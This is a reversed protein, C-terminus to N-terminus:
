LSMRVEVGVDVSGKALRMDELVVLSDPCADCIVVGPSNLECECEGEDGNEVKEEAPAVGADTAGCTFDRGPLVDVLLRFLRTLLLRAESIKRSSRM